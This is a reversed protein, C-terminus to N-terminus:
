DRGRAPPAPKPTTREAASRLYEAADAADLVAQARIRAQIAKARCEDAGLILGGESEEM